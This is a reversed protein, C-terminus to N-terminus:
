FRWMRPCHDVDDDVIHTDDGLNPPSELQNRSADFAQRIANGEKTAGERLVTNFGEFRTYIRPGGVTMPLAASKALPLLGVPDDAM